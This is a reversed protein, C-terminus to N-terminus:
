NNALLAVHIQSKPPNLTSLKPYLSFGLVRFRVQELTSLDCGPPPCPMAFEEASEGIGIVVMAYKRKDPM